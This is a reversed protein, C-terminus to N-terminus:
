QLRPPMVSSPVLNSASNVPATTATRIVTPKIENITVRPANPQTNSPVSLRPPRPQVHDDVLYGERSKLAYFQVALLDALHQLM